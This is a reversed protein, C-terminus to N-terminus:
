NSVTSNASPRLHPGDKGDIAKGHTIKAERSARKQSRQPIIQSRSFNETPSWRGFDKSVLDGTVDCNWCTLRWEAALRTKLGFHGWRMCVIFGREELERLARMATNRAINCAAAADRISLGIRGNNSGDYRWNLELFVVRAQASLSKWAPTAMLWYYIRVHRGEHNSRGTRDHKKPM